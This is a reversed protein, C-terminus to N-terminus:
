MRPSQVFYNLKDSAFDCRVVNGPERDDPGWADRFEWGFAASVKIFISSQPPVVINAVLNSTRYQLEIYKQADSFFHTILNMEVVSAPSSHSLDTSGYYAVIKSLISFDFTNWGFFGSPVLEGYVAGNFVLPATIYLYTEHFSDNFWVYWFDFSPHYSIDTGVYIKARSDYPAITSDQLFKPVDDPAHSPQSSQWIVIPEPLYVMHSSVPVPGRRGIKELAARRFDVGKQFAAKRAAITDAQSLEM